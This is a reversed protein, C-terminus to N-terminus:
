EKLESESEIISCMGSFNDYKSSEKRGTIIVPKYGFDINMSYFTGIIDSLQERPGDIERVDICNVSGDSNGIFGGSIFCEIISMSLDRAIDKNVTLRKLSTNDYLSIRLKNYKSGKDHTFGIYYKGACMKSNCDFTRNEENNVM